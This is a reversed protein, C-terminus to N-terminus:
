FAKEQGKFIKFVTRLIIRIDFWLSWNEMYWIDHEVRHKMEELNQIEGRFGNVQAWGTLGPRLFQRIMYQSILQSYDKTHKLMHPRPGVVSMEGKFVNLFQPFEDLSTKRLFRGVRTIRSDNRTAQELDAKNNVYMSRFKLCPFPVNNRGSRLQVFFVPGRSELKIILALLPILWSLIFIIVMSSILLDFVRKKMWNGYEELPESRPSLVPIDNIYGLHMPRKIFADLDPVLRFRICEKDAAKMVEYIQPFNEPLVTCYIENVQQERSIKMAEPIDCLVPFASLERINRSNECFGVIRTNNGAINEVLKKAVSNYGIILINKQFSEGLHLFHLLPLYIIRNFLIVAALGGLSILVLKRPLDFNQNLTLFLLIIGIWFFFVRGTRRAFPEFTHIVQDGYVGSIWCLFFWSANLFGWFKLFGVSSATHVQPLFFIRRLTFLFLNLMVFDLM